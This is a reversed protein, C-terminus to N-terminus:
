TGVVSYDGDVFAPVTVEVPDEGNWDAPVTETVTFEAGNPRTVTLTIVDGAVTDEPVSVQVQVGDAAEEANVLDDPEAENIALVPEDPTVIESRDITFSDENSANSVNGDADTVTAVATYDGDYLAPVTVDVADTGNWDSPVTETLLKFVM